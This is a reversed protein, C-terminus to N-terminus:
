LTRGSRMELFGHYDQFSRVLQESIGKRGLEDLLSHRLQMGEHETIRIERHARFLAHPYGLCEASNSYCAVHSLAKGMNEAVHSPADVRFARDARPHFKAVYINGDWLGAHHMPRINKEDLCLYWGNKPLITTGVYNSDHVFPRSIGDNWSFTSSKSIGLLYVGKEKSIDFILDLVDKYPEKWFAFGGDYLVLDGEEAEALAEFVAVYEQLERYYTSLRDLETEELRFGYDLGFAEKLDSEFQPAYREQDAVFVKDTIEAKQWDTGRYVVYGTRIFNIKAAALDFLLVNSGDIAFISGDFKQPFIPKFDSEKVETRHYYQDTGDTSIYDKILDALANLRRKEQM